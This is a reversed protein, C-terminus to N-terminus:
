WRQQAREYMPTSEEAIMNKLFLKQLHDAVQFQCVDSNYESLMVTKIVDYSDGIKARNKFLLRDSDEIVYIYLDEIQETYIKFKWATVKYM